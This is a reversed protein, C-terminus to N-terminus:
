GGKVSMLGFNSVAYALFVIGMRIDGRKFYVIAALIYLVGAGFVFWNM